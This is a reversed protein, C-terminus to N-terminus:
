ESEEFEIQFPEFVFSLACCVVFEPFSLVIIDPLACTRWISASFCVKDVCFMTLVCCVRTFIAQAM